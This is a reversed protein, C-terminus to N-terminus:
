GGRLEWSFRFEPAYIETCRQFEGLGGKRFHPQKNRAQNSKTAVTGRLALM